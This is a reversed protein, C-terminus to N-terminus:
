RATRSYLEQFGMARTKSDDIKNNIKMLIAREETGNDEETGKM